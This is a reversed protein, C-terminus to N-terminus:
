GLAGKIKPVTDKPSVKYFVGALKGKEDVLFASRVIGMFKRGYLSKEAWVGWAEAVGHDEDALLPFKLKYKDAFKKQKPPADPSVGLVDIGLKRFSPMAAQM